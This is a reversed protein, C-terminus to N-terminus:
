DYGGLRQGEQVLQTLADCRSLYNSLTERAEVVYDWDADCLADELMDFVEQALRENM